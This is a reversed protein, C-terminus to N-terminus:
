PALRALCDECFGPGKSDTDAIANSFHMVCRPQECHSLGLLHGTEHVAEKVARALLLARDQKKEYFEPSLRQLSIVAVGAEPDAVGFVFNLRPLFLDVATVGLVPSEGDRERELMTLFDGAMYQRRRHNYAADPLRM